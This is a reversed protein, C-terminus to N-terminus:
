RPALGQQGTATKALTVGAAAFADRQKDFGKGSAGGTRNPEGNAWFIGQLFLGYKQPRRHRTKPGLRRTVEGVKKHDIFLDVRNSGIRKTTLNM